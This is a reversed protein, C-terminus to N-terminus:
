HPAPSSTTFSTTSLGSYFRVTNQSTDGVIVDRQSDSNTDEITAIWSFTQGFSTTLSADPTTVICVSTLTGAMMACPFIIGKM